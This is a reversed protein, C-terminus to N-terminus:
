GVINVFRSFLIYGIFNISNVRRVLIERLKFIARSWVKLCQTQADLHVCICYRTIKKKM